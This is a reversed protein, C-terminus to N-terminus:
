RCLSRYFNITKNSVEPRGYWLLNRRQWCIFTQPMYLPFCNLLQMDSLRLKADLGPKGHIHIDMSIDM